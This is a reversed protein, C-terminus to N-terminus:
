KQHKLSDKMSDQILGSVDLLAGEKLAYSSIKKFRSGDGIDTTLNQNGVHIANRVGGLILEVERQGSIISTSTQRNM